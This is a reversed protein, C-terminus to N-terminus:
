KRSSQNRRKVVKGRRRHLDIPSKTFVAIGGMRAMKIGAESRWPPLVQAAFRKGSGPFVVKLFHLTKIGNCLSKSCVEIEAKSDKTPVRHDDSKMCIQFNPFKLLTLNDSSVQSRDEMVVDQQVIEVLVFVIQPVVPMDLLNMLDDNMNFIPDM